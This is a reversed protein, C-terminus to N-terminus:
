LGPICEREARTVRAAVAAVEARVIVIVFLQVAVSHAASYVSMLSAPLMVGFWVVPHAKGTGRVILGTVV